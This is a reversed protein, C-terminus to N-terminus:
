QHGPLCPLTLQNLAFLPVERTTCHNLIRRGICPVRTPDRTWSSGVHRPSVFGALWLQQLRCVRAGLAWARCCSFGGCHSARAGCRLTVGAQQLQLFGTCLLLSGVCGWWGLSFCFSCLSSCLASQIFLLSEEQALLPDLSGNGSSVQPLSPLLHPSSFSQFLSLMGLLSNFGLMVHKRRAERVRNCATRRKFRQGMTQQNCQQPM